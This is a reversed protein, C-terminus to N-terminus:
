PSIQSFLRNRIFVYAGQFIRLCFAIDETRLFYSAGIYCLCSPTTILLIRTLHRLGTDKICYLLVMAVALMSVSAGLLRTFSRLISRFGKFKLRSKLMGIFLVSLIGQTVTTSLAIGAAGLIRMFVWNLLLNLFISLCGMYFLPKNDKLASFFISNVFTYSCFFLGYSYCTLVEATERTARADFTGRQLLFAVIDESLLAVMCTIPLTLFALLVVSRQFFIRVQSFDERIVQEAVFPFIARSIAMIAIQVPMDNIRFAYRLASVSGPALQSAMIHDVFLNSNAILTSGLLPITLTLISHHVSRNYTTKAFFRVGTRNLMLSMYLTKALTGILFGWILAYVATTSESFILFVITSLNIFLPAVYLVFFNKTAHLLGQQIIGVGDLLILFVLLREMEIGLAKDQANFGYGIIPFILPSCLYAALSLFGFCLSTTRWLSVANANAQAPSHQNTWEIYLPVFASILAQTFFMMITGPFAYAVNFVDLEPSIGCRHAVLMEKALALSKDFVTIVMITATALNIRRYTDDQIDM